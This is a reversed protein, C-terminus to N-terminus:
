RSSSAAATATPSAARRCAPDSSTCPSSAPHPPAPMAAPADNVTWRDGPWYVRCADHRIELFMELACVQAALSTTRRPWRATTRRWTPWGAGVGAAAAASAAGDPESAATGEGAAGRNADTWRQLRDAPLVCSDVPDPKEHAAETDLHDYYDSIVQRARSARRAPPMAAPSRPRRRPRRRSERGTRLGAPAGVRLGGQRRRGGHSHMWWGGGILLALIIAAFMAVAIGELQNM